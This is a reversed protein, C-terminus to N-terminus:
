SNNLQTATASHVMVVGKEGERRRRRALPPSNPKKLPQKWVQPLTSRRVM